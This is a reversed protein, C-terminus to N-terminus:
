KLAAQTKVEAINEAEVEKSNDSVSIKLLSSFTQAVAMVALGAELKGMAILVVAIIAFPLLILGRQTSGQTIDFKYNLKLCM